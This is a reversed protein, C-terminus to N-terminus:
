ALAAMNRHRWRRTGHWLPTAMTVAMGNARRRVTGACVGGDTAAPALHFGARRQLHRASIAGYLFRRRASFCRRLLTRPAAAPPVATCRLLDM